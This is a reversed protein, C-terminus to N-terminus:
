RIRGATVREALEKLSTYDSTFDWSGITEGFIAKKELVMDHFYSDITNECLVFDAVVAKKQGNRHFRSVFQEEDAYNWQRELILTNACFQLNIGFGGALESIILVRQNDEKEFRQLIRDKAFPTDQGSYTLPYIGRAELAMKLGDRVTHHHVGIAIKDNETSELFDEVYDAAYPVKAEATIRRLKTLWGLLSLSDTAQGM